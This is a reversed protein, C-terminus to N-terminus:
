KAEIIVPIGTAGQIKEKFYEADSNDDSLHLLHLERVMSMDNADLFDLVTELSLHSRLLRHRQAPHMDEKMTRKSYNCEIAILTLGPFRYKIYFTDTAFLIKEGSEHRILFGLPEAADHIADFPLVVWPGISFQRMAEIIRTRHHSAIGLAEATGRSCYLDIGATMIDKAAKSHDTHEHTVLCAGVEHLKHGLAKRIKKIQLGCELLLSSTGDTVRYLNGGSSSAFSDFSVM